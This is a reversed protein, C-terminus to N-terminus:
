RGESNNKDDLNGYAWRTANRKYIMLLLIANFLPRFTYASLSLQLVYYGAISCALVIEGKRYAYFFVYAYFTLYVLFGIVGFSLLYEMWTNHAFHDTSSLYVSAGLGNGFLIRQWDSHIFDSLLELWIDVRGTGRSSIVSEISFRAGITEPLFGIFVYFVICLLVLIGLIKFFVKMNKKKLGYIFLTIIFTGATSMLGGRSGTILSICILTLALFMFKKKKTELFFFTYSAIAFILYGCSFNPDIQQGLFVIGGRQTNLYGGSVFGYIISFSAIWASFVDAKCLMKYEHQTYYFLSFFVIFVYNSVLSVFENPQSSISLFSTCVAWVCMVALFFYEALFRAHIIQKLMTISALFPVISIVRIVSIGPILAVQSFPLFLFYIALAYGVLEDLNIKIRPKAFKVEYRREITFEVSLM